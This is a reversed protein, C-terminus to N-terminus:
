LDKMIRAAEYVAAHVNRSLVADGIRFLQFRGEPNGAIAQARNEVLAELDLEGLNTSHPKLAFYLDDNPLTGLETVVQDVQREEEEGGFENRLVAIIANGEPYLQTLKLNPSLIVGTKYAARLFAPQTTAGIEEGAMRDSTVLEVTAGRDALYAACGLGHQQGIEDYVLVNQGPAVAGSLLEWTSRALEHGSFGGENPRGGTAVIVLDPREALVTELDAEVGTRLDVGLKVVQQELWRVVGSLNERWAPVKALNLQGGVAEAKEFLVVEHGRETAIRAAELGAPGAGAVVVRRPRAAKTHVHPIAAERGTAANHLCFMDKGLSVRDTCYSAGVCQRIDEPRGEQIKKVIHPDAIHGRTMAVMDLHGEAVAKEATEVDRIASAHFIPIDVERKVASALYLFPAPPFSMDPMLAALGVFNDGHAQYVSLYDILGSGAFAAAVRLCDEADLGGELLEDGSLRLGVIFDDGVEERIGTLVELPFRLRNELSGGYGDDRQNVVPSLFSDLLHHASAIVELGDLGGQRCRRAAARYAKRVRAFDWDEMPKAYGRHLQERNASPGILPLWHYGDWRGRRGMHTIQCFIAAGHRQIRGAFEELYPLIRDHSIDIQAFPLPSDPAVSSSGGFITLALGGKAKEEHYLQYREGPLNADAYGPAHATSMIRNKLTLGKLQLPKLLADYTAM